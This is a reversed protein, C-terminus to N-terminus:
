LVFKISNVHGFTCVDVCAHACMMYLVCAYANYLEFVSHGILM